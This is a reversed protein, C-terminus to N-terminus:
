FELAVGLQYAFRDTRTEKTQFEITAQETDVVISEQDVYEAAGGGLKEFRAEIFFNNAVRVRMGAAWGVTWGFDMQQNSGEIVESYGSSSISIDTFTTYREVGAMLDGYVQFPGKFPKFRAVLQYRYDNSRIRLNGQEYIDDGALDQGMLVSVDEDKAGMVNWAFGLGVEFPSNGLPGTFTGALGSPYGDYNSAFAGIPQTVQVGVALSPSRRNVQGQVAAGALLGLVLLFYHKRM